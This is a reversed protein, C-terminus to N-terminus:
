DCLWYQYLKKLFARHIKMELKRILRKPHLREINRVKNKNGRGAITTVTNEARKVVSGLMRWCPMKPSYNSWAGFLFNDVPSNITQSEELAIKAAERSIFYASTGVPSSCSLRALVNGDQLKIQRNSYIAKNSYNLQILHCGLPIWDTSKLYRDALPSFDCHDELILAWDNDSDVLKEWCARHSLFCAIEGAKLQHPYEINPATVMRYVEDTFTQADVAAVRKYQLDFSKLHNDMVALRDKSRDLNILYVECSSM